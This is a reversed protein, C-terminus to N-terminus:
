CPLGQLISCLCLKLRFLHHLFAIHLILFSLRQESADKLVCLFKNGDKINKLSQPATMRAKRQDFLEFHWSGLYSYILPIQM